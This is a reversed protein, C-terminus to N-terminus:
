EIFEKSSLRHDHQWGSKEIETDPRAKSRDQEPKGGRALPDCVRGGSYAHIEAM